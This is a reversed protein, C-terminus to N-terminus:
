LPTSVLSTIGKQDKSKVVKEKKVTAFVPTIPEQVKM